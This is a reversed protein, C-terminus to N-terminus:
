LLAATRPTTIRPYGGRPTFLANGTSYESLPLRQERGARAGGPDPLECNDGKTGPGCVCRHQFYSPCGSQVAIGGQECPGETCAVPTGHTFPVKTRERPHVPEPPLPTECRPGTFGVHGCSCVYHIVDIDDFYATCVGDNLCSHGDFLCNPCGYRSAGPSPQLGFQWGEGPAEFKARTARVPARGDPCTCTELNLAISESSCPQSGSPRPADSGAPAPVTNDQEEGSGFLSLTVLCVAAVLCLGSLGAVSFVQMRPKQSDSLFAADAGDLGSPRDRKGTVGLKWGPVAELLGFDLAVTKAALANGNAPPAIGHRNPPADAAAVCVSAEAVATAKLKPRAAKKELKPLVHYLALPPPHATGSESLKLDGPAVTQQGSLIYQHYHLKDAGEGSGCCHVKGYRRTVVNQGPKRLHAPLPTTVINRKGGYNRWIDVAIGQRSCQASLRQRTASAPEVCLVHEPLLDGTAGLQLAAPRAALSSHNHRLLAVITEIRLAGSRAEKWAPQEERDERVHHAADSDSEPTFWAAEAPDPESGWWGEYQNESSGAGGTEGFLSSPSEMGSAGDSEVAWVLDTDTDSDEGGAAGGLAFADGEFGEEQSSSRPDGADGAVSMEAAALHAPHLRRRQQGVLVM